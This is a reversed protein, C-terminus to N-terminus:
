FPGKQNRSTVRIGFDSPATKRPADSIVEAVWTGVSPYYHYFDFFNARNVTVSNTGHFVIVEGFVDTLDRMWRDYLLRNEPVGMIADFRDAPMVDTFLVFRTDPFSDKLDRLLSRYPLTYAAPGEKEKIAALTQDYAALFADNPMQTTGVYERTYYRPEFSVGQQSQNRNFRAKDWTDYSYLSRYRYLFSRSKEIYVEPPQVGPDLGQAFSGWYAELYVVDFPKGNEKEAFSLYAKWELPSLSSLSYNFVSEPFAHQDIYTGRSTGLLLGSVGETRRMLNTKLTREDFGSQIRNDPNAGDFNWLPDVHRTEKMIGVLMGAVLIGGIIGTWLLWKGFADM